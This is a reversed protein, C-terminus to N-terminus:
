EFPSFFTLFFRFFNQSQCPGQKGFGTGFKNVEHFFNDEGVIKKGPVSLRRFVESSFSFEREM